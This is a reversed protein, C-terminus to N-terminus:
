SQMTELIHPLAVDFPIKTVTFEIGVAVIEAEPEVIKQEGPETISLAFVPEPSEYWHLCFPPFM